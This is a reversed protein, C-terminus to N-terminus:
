VCLIRIDTMYSSCKIRSNTAATFFNEKGDRWCMGQKQFTSSKRSSQKERKGTWASQEAHTRRPWDDNRERLYRFSAAEVIFCLRRSNIDVPSYHFNCITTIIVEFM